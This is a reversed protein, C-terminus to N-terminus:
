FCSNLFNYGIGGFIQKVVIIAFAGGVIPLLLNRSAPLNMALLLGTVVASCDGISMPRKAAKRFLYEFLVCSAISAAITIFADLGYYYIGMLAAPCLAIIVDIMIGQTTVNDRVHPTSSVVYKADNM